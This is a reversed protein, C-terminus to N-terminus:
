HDQLGKEDRSWAGFYDLRAGYHREKEKWAKPMSAKM